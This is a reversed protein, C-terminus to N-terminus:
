SHNLLNYVYGFNFKDPCGHVYKCNVHSAFEQVRLHKYEVFPLWNEGLNGPAIGKTKETDLIAIGVETPSGIGEHAEVDLSILVLGLDLPFKAAKDADFEFNQHLATSDNPKFGLLVQFKFMEERRHERAKLQKEDSRNKKDRKFKVSLIEHLLWSLQKIDDASADGFFENTFEPLNATRIMERTKADHVRGLYAPRISDQTFSYSFKAANEGPPITLQIDLKANIISLFNEFQETPVFLVPTSLGPDSSFM